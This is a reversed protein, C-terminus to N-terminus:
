HLGSHCCGRDPACSPKAAGTAPSPGPAAPPVPDYGEGGWPHCRLLRRLTLWSGKWPGHVAIAEMGYHSCTPLFRCSQGPLVPSILLQYGRIAGRLLLGIVRM